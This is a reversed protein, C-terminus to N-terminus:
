DDGLVAGWDAADLGGMLAELRKPEALDFLLDMQGLGRHLAAPLKSRRTVVVGM